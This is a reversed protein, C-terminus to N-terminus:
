ADTPASVGANSPLVISARGRTSAHKARKALQKLRLAEEHALPRVFVEPPHMVVEWTSICGLEGGVAPKRDFM